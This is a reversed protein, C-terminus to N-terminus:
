LPTCINGDDIVWVNLIGLIEGDGNCSKIINSSKSHHYDAVHM